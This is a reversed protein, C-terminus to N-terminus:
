RSIAEYAERDRNLSNQAERAQDQVYRSYFFFGTLGVCVVGTVPNVPAVLFMEAACGGIYGTFASSFLKIGSDTPDDKRHTLYYTGGISLGTVVPVM